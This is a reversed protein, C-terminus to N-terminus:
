NQNINAASILILAKDYPIKGYILIHCIMQYAGLQFSFGRLASVILKAGDVINKRAHSRMNDTRICVDNYLYVIFSNLEMDIM